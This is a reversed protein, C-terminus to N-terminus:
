SIYAIWRGASIIAVWLFLSGGGLLRAGLRSRENAEWADARHSLRRQMFWTLLLVISVLLMKTLFLFNLLERAPEGIVLLSGTVLLVAAASWLWVAYRQEVARLSQDRAAWGLLRLNIMLASGMLCAIGLIHVSQIAPTMWLHGSIFISAPTAALWASLTQLM